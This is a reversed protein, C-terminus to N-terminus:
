KLLHKEIFDAIGDEDNSYDTVYDAIEKVKPNGNSMCVGVGCDRIMEFDNLEDGFVLVNELTLDHNGAIIEIGKTKSLEPNIFEFLIPQSRVGRFYQPPNEKVYKEIADIVEPDAMGLIKNCGEEKYKSLDSVEKALGNNGAIKKAYQNDEQVYYIDGDFVGATIQFKACYDELAEKVAQPTLLYANGFRNLPYDDYMGGNFGMLIDCDEQIGWEIIRKRVGALTRGTAIGFMIGQKRLKHIAEKTKPTIIKESNLLTGDLDCLVIKIEKMEMVM